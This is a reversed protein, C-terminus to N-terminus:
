EADGTLDAASPPRIFELHYHSAAFADGILLAAREGQVDADDPNWSFVFGVLETGVQQGRLYVEEKQGDSRVRGTRVIFGDPKQVTSVIRLQTKGVKQEDQYAGLFNQYGSRVTTNAFHFIHELVKGETGVYVVGDKQPILSGDVGFPVWTFDTKAPTMYVVRFDWTRFQPKSRSILERTTSDNPDGDAKLGNRSQCDQVAKFLAQNFTQTPSSKWCGLATMVVQLTARDAASGKEFSKRAAGYDPPAFPVNDNSLPDGATGAAYTGTAPLSAALVFAIVACKWARKVSTEEVLPTNDYLSRAASLGLVLIM